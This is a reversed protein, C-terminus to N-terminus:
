LGLVILYGIALGVGFSLNAGALMYAVFLWDEQNMSYRRRNFWVRFLQRVRQNYM